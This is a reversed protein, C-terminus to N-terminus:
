SNLPMAPLEGTPTASTAPQASVAPTTVSDDSASNADANKWKRAALLATGLGTFCVSQTLIDTTASHVFLKDIVGFFFCISGVVCILLGATGSASSKGNGNSTAQALSFKAIDYKM